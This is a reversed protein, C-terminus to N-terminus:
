ARRRRRVDGAPRGARGCRRGRLEHLRESGLRLRAHVPGVARVDLRPDLQLPLGLETRRAANRPAVDHRGRHDRREPCLHPGQPDAGFAGPVCAVSPGPLPRTGALAALPAGDLGPPPVGGRVDDAGRGPGVVPRRLSDRGGQGADPRPCAPGRLRPQHGLHADAHRGVGRHPLRGTPLRGRHVGLPRPAARLRLGARLRHDDAGRRERLSRHAPPHARRRLRDPRAQPDLRPHRRSAVPGHAAHRARDGLRHRHELQDRRGDDGPHLPPRGSRPCRRSRLPLRRRQPRPNGRVREALRAPPHM